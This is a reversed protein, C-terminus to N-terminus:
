KKAVKELEEKGYKKQMADYDLEERVGSQIQKELIEIRVDISQIGEDLNGNKLKEMQKGFSFLDARAQHFPTRKEKQKGLMILRIKLGEVESPKANRRSGDQKIIEKKEILEKVLEIEEELAMDFLGKDLYMETEEIKLSLDILLNKYYSLERAAQQLEEKTLQVKKFIPKIETM